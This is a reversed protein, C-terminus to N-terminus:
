GKSVRRPAGGRPLPLGHSGGSEHNDPNLNMRLKHNDFNPNTRLSAPRSPSLSMPTDRHGLQHLPPHHRLRRRDTSYRHHGLTLSPITPSSCDSGITSSSTALVGDSGNAVPPCPWPNRGRRGDAEWSTMRYCKSGGLHGFARGVALGCGGARARGVFLSEPTV